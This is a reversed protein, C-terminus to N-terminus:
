DNSKGEWRYYRRGRWTVGRGSLKKWLASALIGITVLCGLPHLFVYRRDVRLFRYQRELTLHLFVLQALALGPLIFLAAYPALSLVAIVLILAPLMWAHDCFILYYIREWGTWLERFGRYMRTAYIDPAYLLSIRVGNRVARRAMEIDELPYPSLAEHGGILLYADRRVLIYQGCAFASRESREVREPRFLIFLIFGILPQVVKEWFSATEPRPLLSLMGLGNNLAHNLPVLISDPSHVTDADTFLLWGGRASRQAISLAHSKGASGGPLGRVRILTVRPFKEEIIRATSDTSHDDAVIIEYNRYSQSSLAGLCRVINDEENRAALVVSVLPPDDMPALTEPTVLPADRLLILARLYRSVWVALIALMLIKMVPSHYCSPFFIALPWHVNPICSVPHDLGDQM